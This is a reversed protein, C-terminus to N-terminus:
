KFELDTVMTVCGTFWVQKIAGVIRHIMMPKASYSRCALSDLVKVRRMMDSSSYTQAFIICYFRSQTELLPSFTSTLHDSLM